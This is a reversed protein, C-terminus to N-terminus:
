HFICVRSIHTGNLHDRVWNDMEVPVQDWTQNEKPVYVEAVPRFKVAAFALIKDHQLVYDRPYAERVLDMFGIISEAEELITGWTKRAVSCNEAIFDGDKQIYEIVDSPKRAAQYNGHYVTSGDVVDFFTASRTQFKEKFKLYAHIHPTGDEHAETSICWAECPVKAKLQELVVEKEMTCRPYTLFVHRAQLRYAM